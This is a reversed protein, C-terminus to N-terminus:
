FINHRSRPHNQAVSISKAEPEDEMPISDLKMWRSSHSMSSAEVVGGQEQMASCLLSSDCDQALDAKRKHLYESCGAPVHCLAESSPREGGVWCTVKM